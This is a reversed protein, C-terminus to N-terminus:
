QYVGCSSGGWYCNGFGSCKGDNYFSGGACDNPQDWPDEASATNILALDSLSVNQIDNIELSTASFFMSLALVFIGVIGIVKKM